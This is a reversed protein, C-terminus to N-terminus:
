SILKLLTKVNKMPLRGHARMHDTEVLREKAFLDSPSPIDSHTKVYELIKKIILEMPKDELIYSFGEVM